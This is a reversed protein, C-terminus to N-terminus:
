CYMCPEISKGMSCFMGSAMSSLSTASKPLWYKSYSRSNFAGVGVKM